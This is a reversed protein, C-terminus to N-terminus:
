GGRGSAMELIHAFDTMMGDPGLKKIRVFGEPSNVTYVMVKIGMDQATKIIEARAQSKSIYVWDLGMQKVGLLWGKSVPSGLPADHAVECGSYQKMSSAIYRSFSDVIVRDEMNLRKLLRATGHILHSDLFYTPQPKLEVLFRVRDGFQELIEGLTSINNMKPIQRLADLSLNSVLEENGGTDRVVGDHIVVPILDHTINVDVEIWQFGADIAREISKIDNGTRDDPAGQTNGRHSVMIPQDRDVAPSPGEGGAEEPPNSQLLNAFRYNIKLLLKLFSIERGGREDPSYEVAQNSKPEPLVFVKRRKRDFVWSQHDGWVYVRDLGRSVSCLLRESSWDQALINVGQNCPAAPIGLLHAMTAPIDSHGALRSLTSADTGQKEQGLGSIILPVQFNYRSFFGEAQMPHDSVIFLQTGKPKEHKVYWQYFAWLAEDLYVISKLFKKREGPLKPHSDIIKKQILPNRARKEWGSPLTYPHHTSLTFLTTFYPTDRNNKRHTEIWDRLQLLMEGDPYGWGWKERKSNPKYEIIEEFGVRSLIVRQKEFGLDGGHFYASRYGHEALVRPFGKLDPLFDLQSYKVATEPIMGTFLPFMAQLSGEGAPFFNEFHLNERAIRQLHPMIPLGDVEIEFQKRGISELILFIMSRGNGKATAGKGNVGTCLPNRTSFTKLPERNGLFRRLSEIEGRTIATKGTPQETFKGLDTLISFIPTIDNAKIGLKFVHPAGLVLGGWLICASFFGIVPWVYLPGAFAGKGMRVRFGHQVRLIILLCLFMELCGWLLMGSDRISPWIHGLERIYSFDSVQFFKGTAAEM